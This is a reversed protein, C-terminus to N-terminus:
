HLRVGPNKVPDMSVTHHMEGLKLTLKGIKKLVDMSDWIPIDDSSQTSGGTSGTEQKTEPQQSKTKQEAETQTEKKTGDESETKNETITANPHLVHIADEFTHGKAVLRRILKIDEEPLGAKEMGKEYVDDLKPVEKEDTDGDTVM